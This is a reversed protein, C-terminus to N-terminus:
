ATDKLLRDYAALDPAPRDFAALRADVPAPTDPRHDRDAHRRAEVIVVAADVIDAKVAADLAALMSIAPLRRHELLVDILGRTAKSDGLRQRAHDWWAQHTDTFTGATRAQALATAGALAGPKRGLVDLYHDLTLTETGKHLSRPHAAVQRAGDFIALESAALLVRVRRGVLRAPVSYFAQRVCVRARTDVRCSLENVVDAPGDAPLAALLDAEDNWWNAVTRTVGARTLERRADDVEVAADVIANLEDLDAVDPTPTLWNRRFRGIEGEVGGKEHGKGPTCFSSDFLYHSRLAIFRPNCDRQKGLLVKVVAPTLNDYRIRVPVGGLFEFAGVHGDLFAEAAENGYVRRFTRGSFSLRMVFMWVKELRGDLVAFLEGFDVEAEWGAPKTQPVMAEPGTLGLERKVEAVFARVTSEAVDADHEDVLRQWVRRATHRQKRPAQLDAELWGRITAVYPGLKPSEREPTKRPPPVASELAQRVTRRHVGHRDALARVSLGGDRGDRRIKEFLEVRTVRDRVATVM